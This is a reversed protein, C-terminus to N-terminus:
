LVVYKTCIEDLTDNFLDHLVRHVENWLKAQEYTHCSHLCNEAYSTHIGRVRNDMSWNERITALIFTLSSHKGIADIHSKEIISCWHEILPIKRGKQDHRLPALAIGDNVGILKVNEQLKKWRDINHFVDNVDIFRGHNKSFPHFSPDIKCIQDFTPFVQGELYEIM